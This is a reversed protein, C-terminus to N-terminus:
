DGYNNKKLALGMATSFSLSTEKNIIPLSNGLRLNVWSNGMEIERCLRTTLYPLLGKLNSGGGCMIIRELKKAENTITQYFDISKEIECALNELEAQIASFVSNNEFSHEIGQNIKIKEAEEPNVNFNKSIADNFILSSIPISSTFYPVNGEAVIFSTKKSGIDVILSISSEKTSEPILSRTSAISELELAYVDLGALKLTEMMEDVVEKAVAVTLVHQKNKSESIYQWDYYVQDVSLPISAEIEWKIAEEIEEQSMKPMNIIRLFAKSEPLSCAVKKTRISKPGAKKIADRIVDALRDKKTIRGGDLIGSPIDLSFFSSIKDIRKGKELQLVKVSSDSIDLAFFNTENRNLNKSFFNV